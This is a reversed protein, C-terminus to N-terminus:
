EWGEADFRRMTEADMERMTEMDLPNFEAENATARRELELSWREEETQPSYHELVGEITDEYYDFTTNNSM